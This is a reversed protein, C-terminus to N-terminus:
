RRQAETVVNGAIVPLHQILQITLSRESGRGGLPRPPISWWWMWMKRPWPRCASGPRGWVVAAGVLLAAFRQICESIRAKQIDKVTLLGKLVNKEDLLPLKEIRHKQLLKKAEELSIGVPATVLPQPTMFQSVPLDYDAAEVFRVDRNTLIGVLCGGAEVVPVGSIHYTAMIAEAERLTATPPLTIPEVIM